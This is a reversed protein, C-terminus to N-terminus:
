KGAYAQKVITAIELASTATELPIKKADAIKNFFGDDNGGKVVIIKTANEAGLQNFPDSLAGRRNMGGLHVVLVPVSARHAADLLASVRASEDEASIQAAGLGKSSGGVVLILSGKGDVDAAKATPEYAFNLSDRTLLTKMMLVDASQGCSTLLIPQAFNEDAAFLPAAFAVAVFLVAALISHHRM